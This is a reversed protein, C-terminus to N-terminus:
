SGAAAPPSVPAARLITWAIWSAAVLAIAHAPLGQQAFVDVLIFVPLLIAAGRPVARSRWLAAAVTFIGFLAGPIFMVFMAVTAPSSVTDVRDALAVLDFRGDKALSFELTEFGQAMSLGVMGCGLLIGGTYALRPSRARSLLVYVLVGGLLFPMALVDFLKAVDARTQHAAIWRLRDVTKDHQPEVAFVVVQCAAGTVLTAAAGLRGARTFSVAPSVAPEPAELLSAVASV